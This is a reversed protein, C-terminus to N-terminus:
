SIKANEYSKGSYVDHKNERIKFSSKTYKSFGWPIHEDVKTTFSKHPNNKCGDIKEILCELDPYIIFPAKDSKQYQNFELIKTDESSVFKNCFDKNEFVSKHSELNNKTRIFRLCNLFYFNGSNKSSVGELLASWGLYHWGKGNAILLLVVQRERNSTHKSIYSPYIKEKKVYM